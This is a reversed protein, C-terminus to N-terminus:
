NKLMNNEILTNFAIQTGTSFYTQGDEDKFYSDDDLVKTILTKVLDYRMMDVQASASIINDRVSKNNLIRNVGDGNSTDFSDTNIIIETEKIKNNDSYEIFKCIEKLDFYPFVSDKNM